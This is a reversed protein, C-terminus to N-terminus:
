NKENARRKMEEEYENVSLIGHDLLVLLENESYRALNINAKVNM